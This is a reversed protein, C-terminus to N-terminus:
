ALVEGDRSVTGEFCGHGRMVNGGLPLMGTAIDKLAAEFALQVKKDASDDVFAEEMVLIDLRINETTTVVKEDYLASDLAGGTFRDIAVHNFVKERIPQTDLYVDSFIVRGRRGHKEKVAENEAGGNLENDSSKDSVKASDKDSNKAFGFLAQVATNNEGCFDKLLAPEGIQDAFNGVLRNYHYATRHSIAGKVSTAPILVRETEFNPRGNTWSLVVERKTVADVDGDGAGSSFIFFDDPKLVLQYKVTGLAKDAASSAAGKSNEPITLKASRALWATREDQKTLDYAVDEMAVVSLEGWGKRTGAGVRFLPSRLLAVIEQWHPEDEKTGILEIAFVFRSGKYVAQSNFKGHAEQDAVGKENIKCHDRVALMQFRSYFEDNFSTQQLGDVVEGEKGVMRAESVILRSGSGAAGSQFGLIDKVTENGLFSALSHRLVGTLSTGPIMPLGNADTEVREDVSIGMKGSGVSIPTAAEVLLTACYRMTLKEM